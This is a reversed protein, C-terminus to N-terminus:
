SKFFLIGVIGLLITYYGFIDIRIRRVMSFLVKLSVLSVIVTVMVAIMVPFLGEAIFGRGYLQASEFLGAGAIVPIAMLFSFKASEEPVLGVLMGATITSGSRSVGPMIAFAQFCGIFLSQLFGIEELKRGKITIIKTSLLIIGNLILMFFVLTASSFLSKFFDHFIIGMISAPLSAAVINILTRFEGRRFNKELLGSFSGRLIAVIDRWLYILVALLTAVHLSVNIFLELDAGIVEIGRRFFGVQGLIALHGSSSIPIFETIGQIVGLAILIFIVNNMYFGEEGRL